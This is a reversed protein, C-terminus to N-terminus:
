TPNALARETALGVRFIAVMPTPWTAVNVSHGRGNRDAGYRDSARRTRNKCVGRGPPVILPGVFHVMVPKTGIDRIETSRPGAGIV